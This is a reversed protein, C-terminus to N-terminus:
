DQVHRYISPIWPSDPTITLMKEDLPLEFGPISNMICKILNRMGVIEYTCAHGDIEVTAVKGMNAYMRAYMEGLQSMRRFLNAAKKLSEPKKRFLTDRQRIYEDFEADTVAREENTYSPYEM